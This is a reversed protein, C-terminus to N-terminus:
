LVYVDEDLSYQAVDLLRKNLKKLEIMESVGSGFLGPLGNMADNWGPKNAEYSLGIGLPDLHLVKNIILTLIKGFLNVEVPKGDVKLWDSSPKSHDHAIADYQRVFGEKNVVYKEARPLVKVPSKFYRYKKDKFWLDKIKDPYVDYFADMVD